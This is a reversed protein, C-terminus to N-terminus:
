DGIVDAAFLEQMVSLYPRFHAMQEVTLHINIAQELLDVLTRVLWWQVKLPPYLMLCLPFLEEQFSAIKNELICVCLYIQFMEVDRISSVVVSSNALSGSLSSYSGVEQIVHNCIDQAIASSQPLLTQVAQLASSNSDHQAAADYARQLPMYLHDDLVKFYDEILSKEASSLSHLLKQGTYHIQMSVFGLVRPDNSSFTTRVRGCEPGIVTALSQPAKGAHYVNLVKEFLTHSNRAIQWPDIYHPTIGHRQVETTLLGETKSWAQASAFNLSAMLKSATQARGELSAVESLRDRDRNNLLQSYNLLNSVYRKGWLKALTPFNRRDGEDTGCSDM